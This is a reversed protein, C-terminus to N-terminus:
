LRGTHACEHTRFINENYFSHLSNRKFCQIAHSQFYFEIFLHLSPHILNFLILRNYCPHINWLVKTNITM